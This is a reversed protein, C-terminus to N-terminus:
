YVVISLVMLLLTTGLFISSLRSLILYKNLCGNKADFGEVTKGPAKYHYFIILM